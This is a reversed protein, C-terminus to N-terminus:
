EPNFRRILMLALVLNASAALFACPTRSPLGVLRASADTFPAGAFRSAASLNAAFTNGTM